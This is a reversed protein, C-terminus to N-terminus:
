AKGAADLLVRRMWAIRPMRAKKAAQTIIAFEARNVGCKVYLHRRRDLELVPQGMRSYSQLGTTMEEGEVRALRRPNGPGRMCDTHLAM